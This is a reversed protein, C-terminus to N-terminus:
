VPWGPEVSTLFYHEGARGTLCFRRAAGRGVRRAASSVGEAPRCADPRPNM